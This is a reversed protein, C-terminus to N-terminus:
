ISIKLILYHKHRYLVPLCSLIVINFHLDINMLYKTRRYPLSYM